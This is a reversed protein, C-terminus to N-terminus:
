GCSPPRRNRGCSRRFFSRRDRQPDHLNDPGINIHEAWLTAMFDAMGIPGGPHGCAAAHVMEVVDIRIQRAFAEIEAQREPTITM